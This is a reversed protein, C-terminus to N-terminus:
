IKKEEQGPTLLKVLSDLEVQILDTKELLLAINKNASNELEKGRHEAREKIQTFIHKELDRLIKNQEHVAMDMSKKLYQLRGDWSVEAEEAKESQIIIIYKADGFISKRNILNENECMINALEQLMNNESTDQVRDFTDGMIAILMNLMIILIIMTNLFWIFYLYHGDREEDFADTDFEGLGLTYSYIFARWYTGGTFLVETNRAMIFFFNGFGSVALLFVLLFWRM